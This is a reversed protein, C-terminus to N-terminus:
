QECGGKSGGEEQGGDDRAQIIAHAGFLGGARGKAGRM